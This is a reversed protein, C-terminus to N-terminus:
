RERIIKELFCSIFGTEPQLLIYVICKDKYKNGIYKNCQFTGRYVVDNIKINYIMHWIPHKPDKRFNYAIGKYIKYDDQKIYTKIEKDNLMLEYSFSTFFIFFLFPFLVMGISYKSEYHYIIAIIELALIFTILLNIQFINRKTKIISNIKKIGTKKIKKRYESNVMVPRHNKFYLYQENARM